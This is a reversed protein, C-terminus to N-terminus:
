NPNNLRFYLSYIFHKATGKTNRVNKKNLVKIKEKYVSEMYFTLNNVKSIKLTDYYLLTEPPLIWSGQDELYRILNQSLFASLSKGEKRASNVLFTKLLDPIDANIKFSAAM